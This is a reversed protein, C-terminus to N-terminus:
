KRGAKAPVPVDLTLNVALDLRYRTLVDYQLRHPWAMRQFCSPTSISAAFVCFFEECCYLEIGDQCLLIVRLRIYSLRSFYPSGFHLLKHTPCVSMSIVAAWNACTIASDSADISPLLCSCNNECTLSCECFASTDYNYENPAARFTSSQFPPTTEDSRDFRCRKDRQPQM